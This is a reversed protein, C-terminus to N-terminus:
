SQPSLPPSPPSFYRPLAHMFAGKPPNHILYNLNWIRARRLLVSLHALSLYDVRGNNIEDLLQKLGVQIFSSSNDLGTLTKVPLQRSFTVDTSKGLDTFMSSFRDYLSLPLRPVILRTGSFPDFVKEMVIAFDEINPPPQLEDSKLQDLTIGCITLADSIQGGLILRHTERVSSLVPLNNEVSGRYLTDLSELRLGELSRLGFLSFVVPSNDISHTSGLTTSRLHILNNLYKRGLLHAFREEDYGFMRLEEPLSVGILERHRFTFIQSGLDTVIQAVTGFCPQGDRGIVPRNLVLPIEKRNSLQLVIVTYYNSADTNIEWSEIQPAQPNKSKALTLIPLGTELDVLDNNLKALIEPSYTFEGDLLQSTPLDLPFSQDHSNIVATGRTATQTYNAKTKTLARFIGPHNPPFIVDFTAMGLGGGLDEVGRINVIEPLGQNVKPLVIAEKPPPAFGDYLRKIKEWLEIKEQSIPPEPTILPTQAIFTIKEDDDSRPGSSGFIFFDPCNNQYTALNVQGSFKRRQSIPPPVDVIKIEDLKVPSYVPKYKSDIKKIIVAQFKREPHSVMQWYLRNNGEAVMLFPKGQDDHWEEFIIPTIQWDIEGHSEYHVIHGEITSINQNDQLLARDIQEIRELSQEKVYTASFMIPIPPRTPDITELSIEATYYPHEKFRHNSTEQTPLNRLIEVLEPFTGYRTKGESVEIQNIESMEREKVRQLM